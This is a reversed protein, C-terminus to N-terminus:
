PVRKMWVVVQRKEPVQQVGVCCKGFRQKGNQRIKGAFAAVEEEAPVDVIVALSNKAAERAQAWLSSYCTSAGKGRRPEPVETLQLKKM